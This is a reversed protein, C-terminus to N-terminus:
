LDMWLCWTKRERKVDLLRVSLCSHMGTPHTGAARLGCAATQKGPPTTTDSGPPDALDPPSPTQDLPPIGPGPPHHRIRPPDALDPPPPTQDPPTTQDPPPYHRIRPPRGPGSPHHWFRSPPDALDRPCIADWCASLCVGEGGTSLCVGTFVNGQGFSRKPRYYLHM